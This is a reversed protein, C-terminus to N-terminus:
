PAVEILAAYSSQARRLGDRYGEAREADFTGDGLLREYERDAEELANQVSRWAGRFGERAERAGEERARAVLVDLNVKYEGLWYDIDRASEAAAYSLMAADVRLRANEVDSTSM